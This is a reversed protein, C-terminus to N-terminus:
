LWGFFFEGLGSIARSAASGVAISEEAYLPATVVLRIGSYVHLEAVIEGEKIPAPIPGKYVIRGEMSDRSQKPVLATLAEGIKVNLRGQDAGYLRVSGVHTNASIIDTPIFSAFGWELLRRGDVTRDTERKMGMLVAILRTGNQVASGILGYGAEQSHGTKLGDAGIPASLLPNRNSQRINNWKFSREAFMPYMDAHKTIIYNAIAALDSASIRHDPHPLGNPNVFNFDTLGLKKGFNNMREAFKEVSGNMGEALIIASDNGSQVILGRLLNEVSIESGLAAFMTSGRAPAGGTRWAYESVKYETELTIEGNKIADFVIAATMIKTLSAPPAAVNADKSFLISGTEVDILIAQKARSQYNQAVSASLSFLLSFVAGVIIKALFIRKNKM